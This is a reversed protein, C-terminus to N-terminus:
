RVLPTFVPTTLASSMEWALKPVLADIGTCTFTSVDARGADNLKLAEAIPGDTVSSNVPFVPTDTSVNVEPVAADAIANATLLIASEVPTEARSFLGTLAADPTLNSDALKPDLLKTATLARDPVNSTTSAEPDVPRGFDARDVLHEREHISHTKIRELDAPVLRDEPLRDSM